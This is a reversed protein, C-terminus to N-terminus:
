ATRVYSYEMILKSIEAALWRERDNICSLAVAKLLNKNFIGSDIVETCFIDVLYYRAELPNVLKLVNNVAAKHANNPPYKSTLKLTKTKNKIFLLFYLCGLYQSFQIEISPSKCFYSRFAVLNIEETLAERVLQSADSMRHFINANLLDAMNFEIDSSEINLGDKKSNDHYILHLLTSLRHNLKCEQEIRAAFEAVADQHVSFEVVGMGKMRAVYHEFEKVHRYTTLHSVHCFVTGDLIKGQMADSLILGGLYFDWGPVGFAMRDALVDDKILAWLKKLQTLGFSFIDLGGRYQKIPGFDCLDISFIERRTFAACLVVNPLMDMLKRANPYIDSNTLILFNPSVKNVLIDLVSKIRPAKFGHIKQATSEDEIIYIDTDDVGM